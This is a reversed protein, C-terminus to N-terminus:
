QQGGPIQPDEGVFGVEQDRDEDRDRGPLTAGTFKERTDEVTASVAQAAESATARV